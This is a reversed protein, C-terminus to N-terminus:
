KGLYSCGQIKLPNYMKITNTPSIIKLTQPPKDKLNLVMLKFNIIVLSTILKSIRSNESLKSSNLSSIFNLYFTLKALFLPPLLFNWATTMRGWVYPHNSKNLLGPPTLRAQLLALILKIPLTTALNCFSKQILTICKFYIYQVIIYM